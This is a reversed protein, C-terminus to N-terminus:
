ISPLSLQRGEANTISLSVTADFLSYLLCFDRGSSELSTWNHYLKLATTIDSRSSLKSQLIHSVLMETLMELAHSNNSSLSASTTAAEIYSGTAGVHKSSSAAVLQEFLHTPIHKQFTNWPTTSFLHHNTIITSAEEVFSSSPILLLYYAYDM